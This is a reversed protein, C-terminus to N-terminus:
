DSLYAQVRGRDLHYCCLFEGDATLVPIKSGYRAELQPDDTIDIIEISAAQAPSLMAALDAILSECLSCGPRSYVTWRTM